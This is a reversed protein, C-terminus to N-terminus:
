APGPGNADRTADEIAACSACLTVGRLECIQCIFTGCRECPYGESAREKKGCARCIMADVEESM